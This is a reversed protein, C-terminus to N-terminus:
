IAKLLNILKGSSFFQEGVRKAEEEIDSRMINFMSLAKRVQYTVDQGEKYKFIPSYMETYSLRDPVLIDCGCVLAEYPTIGLTEQNAFSVVLKARNLIDHYGQKDLGLDQVNVFKYDTDSLAKALEDFKWPQKEPANRQTFLVLNEKQVPKAIDKIYEMPFGAVVCNLEWNRDIVDRFMDLHFQTAFVLADCASAMALEATRAWKSDGKTKRGLFDYPDYSGAHALAVIKVPIDMLASMYKVMTIVPNWFDTFLFVDDPQVTGAYFAEAITNGQDCKFFNTSAWNLFAGDSAVDNLTAGNYVFVTDFHERFLKPLHTFWQKTYRSEIPELQILHLRQNPM